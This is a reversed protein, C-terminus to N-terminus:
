KSEFTVIRKIEKILLNSGTAWLDNVLEIKDGTPTEAKRKNTNIKKVLSVSCEAIEAVKEASIPVQPKEKKTCTTKNNKEKSQM